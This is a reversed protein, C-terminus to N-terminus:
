KLDPHNRLVNRLQEFQPNDPALALAHSVAKLAESQAGSRHCALALLYYYQPAPDLEAAKRAADVAQAFNCGAHLYLEVLAAYAGAERPAIEIVRQLAKEAGEFDRKRTYIEALDLQVAMDDPNTHAAEELTAIAEDARNQRELLWALVRRCEVHRASIEAARILLRQATRPDGQELYAKAAAVSIDAVGTCVEEINTETESLEDRHAQEDRAKLEKFIELHEKSKESDGLKAYAMGLGYHSSALDPTIAIAEEYADRAEDYKGLQSYTEGLLVLTAMSEPHAALDKRLVAIAEELEGQNVLSKALLVPFRSSGPDLAVAKRFVEAARAHDGSDQAILGIGHYAALLNPALEMCRTWYRLAEEQEGFRSHLAAMTDLANPDNPYRDLLDTAIAEAEYLLAAVEPTASAATEAVISPRDLQKLVVFRVVGGAIILVGGLLV